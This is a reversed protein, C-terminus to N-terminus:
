CGKQISVMNYGSDTVLKELTTDDIANDPHLVISIQGQDMDVQIGAVEKRRGFVKEVARACFDCVLGNVKVLVRNECVNGKINPDVLEAVTEQSKHQHMDSKNEASISDNWLLAIFLVSCFFIKM